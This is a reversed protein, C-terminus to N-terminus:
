RSRTSSRSGPRTSKAPRSIAGAPRSTRRLPRHFLRRLYFYAALGGVGVILVFLSEVLTRAGTTLYYLGLGVLVVMVAPWAVSVATWLPHPRALQALLRREEATAPRRPM